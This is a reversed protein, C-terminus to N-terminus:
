ASWSRPMTIEASEPGSRKAQHSHRPGGFGSGLCHAVGPLHHAHRPVNTNSATASSDSGM